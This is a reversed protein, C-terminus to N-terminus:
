IVTGFYHCINWKVVMQRSVLYKRTTCQYFDSYCSGWTTIPGDTCIKGLSIQELNEVINLKKPIVGVLNKLYIRINRM